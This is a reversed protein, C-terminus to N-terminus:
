WKGLHHVSRNAPTFPLVVGATVRTGTRGQAVLKEYKGKSSQHVTLHGKKTITPDDQQSHLSGETYVRQFALRTQEPCAYALCGSCIRASNAQAFADAKRAHFSVVRQLQRSSVKLYVKGANPELSCVSHCSTSDQTSLKM